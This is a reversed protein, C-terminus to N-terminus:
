GYHQITILRKQEVTTTLQLVGIEDPLLNEIREAWEIFCWNGSYLYEETGIDFAENEDEIRYFDFHYITGEKTALYENVISFTPSSVHDQVEMAKMLHRILTTKGAGMEGDFRWVKLKLDKLEELLQKAVTDLEKESFPGIKKM